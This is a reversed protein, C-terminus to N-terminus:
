NWKDPAIVQYTELKGNEHEKELPRNVDASEGRLQALGHQPGTRTLLGVTIGVAGTVVETWCTQGLAEHLTKVSM